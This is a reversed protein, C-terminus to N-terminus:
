RVVDRKARLVAIEALVTRCFEDLRWGYGPFRREVQWGGRALLRHMEELDVALSEEVADPDVADIEAEMDNMVTENGGSGEHAYFNVVAALEFAVRLARTLARKDRGNEIARGVLAILSESKSVHDDSALEWAERRPSADVVRRFAQATIRECDTDDM